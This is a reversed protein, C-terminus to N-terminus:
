AGEENNNDHDIIEVEIGEPQRTVEAVGGLVEVVIKRAAEKETRERMQQYAARLLDRYFATSDLHLNYRESLRIEAEYSDLLYDMYEPTGETPIQECESM